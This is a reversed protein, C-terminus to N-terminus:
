AALKSHILKLILDDMPVELRIRRKGGTLSVSDVGAQPVVRIRVGLFHAPHRTADVLQISSPVSFLDHVLAQIRQKMWRATHM